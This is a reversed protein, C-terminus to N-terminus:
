NKRRNRRGKKENNSPQEIPEVHIRCTGPNDSSQVAMISFDNELPEGKITGVTVQHQDLIYHNPTVTEYSFLLKVRLEIHLIRHAQDKSTNLYCPAPPAHSIVATFFRKDLDALTPFEKLFRESIEKNIQQQMADYMAKGMDDVTGLQEGNEGIIRASLDLLEGLPPDIFLIIEEPVAHRCIKAIGLRKFQAPWDTELAQELTYTAIDHAAAKTRAGSSFGSKSVVVIKNVPLDQYKGILGDIWEIDDKGKRGRCEMAIRIPFGCVTEEMLIDVERETNGEREKLMASEIIKGGTDQLQQYIRKILAQFENTRRPM